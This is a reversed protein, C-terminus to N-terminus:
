RVSSFPSLFPLSRKFNEWIIIVHIANWNAEGFSGVQHKPGSYRPNRGKDTPNLSFTKISIWRSTIRPRSSFGVGNIRSFKGLLFDGCRPQILTSGSSETTASEYGDNKVATKSSILSDERVQFKSSSGVTIDYKYELSVFILLSVDYTLM